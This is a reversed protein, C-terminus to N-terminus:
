CVFGILAEIMLGVATSMSVLLGTVVFSSANALGAAALGAPSFASLMLGTMLATIGIAGIAIIPKHTDM